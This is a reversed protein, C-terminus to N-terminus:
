HEHEHEDDDEDEFQVDSLDKSSSSSSSFSHSHSHGCVQGLSGLQQRRPKKREYQRNSVNSFHPRSAQISYGRAHHNTPSRHSTSERPAGEGWLNTRGPSAM